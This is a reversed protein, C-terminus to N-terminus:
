LKEEKETPEVEPANYEKRQNELMSDITNRVEQKQTDSLGFLSLKTELQRKHFNYQGRYFDKTLVTM